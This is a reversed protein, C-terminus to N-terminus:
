PLLVGKLPHDADLRPEDATRTCDAVALHWREATKTLRCPPCPQAASRGQRSWVYQAQHDQAPQGSGRRSWQELAAVLGGTRCRRRAVLRRRFWAPGDSSGQEAM